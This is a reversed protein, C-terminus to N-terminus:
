TFWHQNTLILNDGKIDCRDQEQFIDTLENIGRLYLLLTNASKWLMNWDNIDKANWTFNDATIFLWDQHLYHSLATLCCAMVQVLTSLTKHHWVADHPPTLSDIRTTSLCSCELNVLDSSGHSSNGQSRADGLWWCGHSKEEQMYADTFGTLMPQSLPKAGVRRWAM